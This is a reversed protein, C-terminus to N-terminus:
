FCMISNNTTDCTGSGNSTDIGFMRATKGSSACYLKNKESNVCCHNGKGDLFGCIGELSVGTNLAMEDLQAVKAELEALRAELENSAEVLIFYILRLYSLYYIFYTKIM